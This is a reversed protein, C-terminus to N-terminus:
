KRPKNKTVGTSKVNKKVTNKPISSISNPLKLADYRKKFWEGVSMNDKEEPQPMLFYGGFKKCLATLEEYRKKHDFKLCKYLKRYCIPCFYIPNEDTQFLGNTGMMLCNYYICHMHGFMHGIEHTAIKLIRLLLLSNFDEENDFSECTFEPMFRHISQVGGLAPIGYGFCYNSLRETFLDVDTFSIM